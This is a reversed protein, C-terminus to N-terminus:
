GDVGGGVKFGLKSLTEADESYELMVGAAKDAERKEKDTVAPPTYPMKLELLLKQIEIKHRLEQEALTHKLDDLNREMRSFRRETELQYKLFEKESIM